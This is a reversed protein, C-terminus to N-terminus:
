GDLGAGGLIEDSYTNIRDIIKVTDKEDISVARLTELLIDVFRTFHSRQIGLGYHAHSLSRGTYKSPGGLAAAFFERQMRKQKDIPVNKFFPSLDEDALVKQYFSDVLREVTSEGGIRDFITDNSEM